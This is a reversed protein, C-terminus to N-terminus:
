SYKINLSIAHNSRAEKNPKRVLIPEHLSKSEISAGLYILSEPDFYQRPQDPDPEFMTISIDLIEDSICIRGLQDISHTSLSFIADTNDALSAQDPQPESTNTTSLKQNNDTSSAM